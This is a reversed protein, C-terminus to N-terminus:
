KKKENRISNDSNSENNIEKIIQTSSVGQELLYSRSLHREFDSSKNYLLQMEDYAEMDEPKGRGGLVLIRTEWPDRSEIVRVTITRSVESTVYGALAVYVEQSMEETWLNSPAQVTVWLYDTKYVPKYGMVSPTKFIRIVSKIYDKYHDMDLIDKFIVEKSLSEEQETLIKFIIKLQESETLDASKVFYKKPAVIDAIKEKYEKHLDVIKTLRKRYESTLEFRKALTEYLRITSDVKNLNDYAYSEEEGIRTLDREIELLQERAYRKTNLPKRLQTELRSRDFEKRQKTEQVRMVENEFYGRKQMRNSMIGNIYTVHEDIMRSEDQPTRLIMQVLLYITALESQIDRLDELENQSEPLGEYYWILADTLYRTEDYFKLINLANEALEALNVMDELIKKQRLTFVQSSPILQKLRDIIIAKKESFELHTKSLNTLLTEINDLKRSGERRLTLNIIADEIPGTRGMSKITSLFKMIESLWNKIQIEVAEVHLKLDDELRPNSNITTTLKEEFQEENFTGTKVLYNKFLDRTVEYDVAIINSVEDLVDLKEKRL